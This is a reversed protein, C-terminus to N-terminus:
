HKTDGLVDDAGGTVSRESPTYMSSGPTYRMGDAVISSDDSSVADYSPLVEDDPIYQAFAARPSLPESMSQVVPLARGEEAAVMDGVLEAAMRCGAIEQEMTREEEVHHRLMSTKEEDDDEDDDSFWGRFFLRQLFKQRQAHRRRRTERRAACGSNGGFFRVHLVRVLVLILAASVGITL